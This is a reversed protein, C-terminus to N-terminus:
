AKRIWRHMEPSADELVAGIINGGAQKIQLNTQRVAAHSSASARVVLITGFCLPALAAAAPDEYMAGCDIAAFRFPAIINALIARAEGAFPLNHRYLRYHYLGPVFSDPTPERSDEPGVDM